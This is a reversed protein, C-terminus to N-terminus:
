FTAKLKSEQRIVNIIIPINKEAWEINLKASELAAKLSRNSDLQHEETFKQIKDIEEHTTSLSLIESLINPVEKDSKFSFNFYILFNKLKISKNLLRKLDVWALDIDQYHKMIFDLVAPLNQRQTLTAVLASHKDQLRIADSM